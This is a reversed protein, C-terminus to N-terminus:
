MLLVMIDDLGELKTEFKEIWLMKVHIKFYLPAM